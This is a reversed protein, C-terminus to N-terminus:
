PASAQKLPLFIGISILALGTAFILWEGATLPGWFFRSPTGPFYTFAYTAMHLGLPFLAIGLIVIFSVASNRRSDPRRLFTILGTIIIIPLSLYPLYGLVTDLARFLISYGSTRLCILQLSYAALYTGSCLLATGIVNKM